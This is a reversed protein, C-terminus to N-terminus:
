VGISSKQNDSLTEAEDWRNQCRLCSYIIGRRFSLDAINTVQSDCNPCAPKPRRWALYFCFAGAFALIVAIGIRIYDM